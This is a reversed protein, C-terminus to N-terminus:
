RHGEDLPQLDCSGRKACAKSCYKVREWDRQWKKRWTFDRDCVPCRKTPLNQQAKNPM